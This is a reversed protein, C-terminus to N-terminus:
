PMIFSRSIFSNMECLSVVSANPLRMTNEEKGGITALANAAEKVVRELRAAETAVQDRKESVYRMLQREKAQVETAKEKLPELREIDAELQRLRGELLGKEQSYELLLRQAEALKRESEM